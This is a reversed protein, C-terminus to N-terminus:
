AAENEALRDALVKLAEQWPLRSAAAVPAAPAAPAAAVPRPKAAPKPKPPDPHGPYQRRRQEVAVEPFAALALPPPGDPWVHATSPLRRWSREHLPPYVRPLTGITQTRRPV